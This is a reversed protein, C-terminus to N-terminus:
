ICWSLAHNYGKDGSKELHLSYPGIMSPVMSGDPQFGYPWEGKLTVTLHISEGYRNLAM